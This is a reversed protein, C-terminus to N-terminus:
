HTLPYSCIYEYTGIEEHPPNEGPHEELQVVKQEHQNVVITARHDSTTPNAIYSDTFMSHVGTGDGLNLVGRASYLKETTPLYGGAQACGEAAAKIGVVPGRSNVDFCTGRILTTGSPCSASASGLTNASTANEATNAASVTGLSSVAIDAGTLSEKAVKSSNVADAAFKSTIVAGSKLQRSGVSGKSLGAYATGVLAVVIAIIAIVMAPSLRKTVGRM